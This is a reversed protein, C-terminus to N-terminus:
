IFHNGIGVLRFRIFRNKKFDILGMLYFTFVSDRIIIYIIFDRQFGGLYDGLEGDKNWSKLLRELGSGGSSIHQGMPRIEQGM